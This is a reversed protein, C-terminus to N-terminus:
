VKEYQDRAWAEVAEECELNAPYMENPLLPNSLGLHRIEHLATTVVGQFVEQSFAWPEAFQECIEQSTAEIAGLNIVISSEAYWYLGVCTPEDFDIQGPWEWNELGLQECVDEDDGEDKVFIIHRLTTLMNPDIRLFEEIIAREYESCDPCSKSYIFLSKLWEETPPVIHYTIHRDELFDDTQIDTQTESLIALTNNRLEEDILQKWLINKM